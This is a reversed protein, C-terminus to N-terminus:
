CVLKEKSHNVIFHELDTLVTAAGFGGSKSILHFTKGRYEVQSLVIGATLEGIPVLEEQGIQRLFALLTDGGTVLLTAELGQDLLRKLVGGMAASIRGRVEDLDVGLRAIYARSEEDDSPGCEIISGDRGKVQGLWQTLYRAGEISDLWGPELKQRPTLQIRLVGAREAADLQGVTIPNISGCITVLRPCFEPLQGSHQELGLLQPLVAAFGACGALLHIQGQEKLGSAIRSLDDDTAADYILIGEPLPSPVSGPVTHLAAASQSAVIDRVSSCRVPEFPDAGFVSDAVPVGQIYHVGGITKRDMRPFAPIFHLRKAGSAALMGDLESGINGRLGSDTKKYICPIGAAVAEGVIRAVTERAKQPPMHRTEADVILVQLDGKLEGLAAKSGAGAVRIQTGKAKFQVGTDLAGTFDDAIVLLKVM